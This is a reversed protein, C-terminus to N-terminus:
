NSIALPIRKIQYEVLTFSDVQVADDLVSEAQTLLAMGDNENFSGYDYRCLLRCFIM